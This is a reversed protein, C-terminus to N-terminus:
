LVRVECSEDRSSYGLSFALILLAAGHLRVVGVGGGDAVRVHITANLELAFEGEERLVELRVKVTAHRSAASVLAADAKLEVHVRDGRVREALPELTTALTARLPRAREVGHVRVNM